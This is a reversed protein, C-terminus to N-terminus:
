LVQDKDAMGRFYFLRAKHIQGNERAHKIQM